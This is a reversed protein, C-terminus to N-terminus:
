EIGLRKAEDPLQKKLLDFNAYQTITNFSALLNAFDIDKQRYHSQAERYTGYVDRSIGGLGARVSSDVTERDQQDLAERKKGLEVLKQVYSEKLKEVEAKVAAVEPKDKTLNTIETMAEVYLDGIAEGLQKPTEVKVEEPKATEEKQEAPQEKCGTLGILVVAGVLFIVRAIKM